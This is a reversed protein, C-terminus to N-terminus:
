SHPQIDRLGQVATEGIDMGDMGINLVNTGDFVYAEPSGEFETGNILARVPGLPLGYTTYVVEWCYAYLPVPSPGNIEYPGDIKATGDVMPAEWADAQGPRFVKVSTIRPAKVPYCFRAAQGRMIIRYKPSGASQYSTTKDGITIGVGTDGPYTRQSPLADKISNGVPLQSEDLSVKRLVERPTNQSGPYMGPLSDRYAEKSWKGMPVMPVLHNQIEYTITNEYLVYGGTEYSPCVPHFIPFHQDVALKQTNNTVNDGGDPSRCVTLLDEVGSARIPVSGEMSRTASSQSAYHVAWNGPTSAFFRTVELLNKLFTFVKFSFNFTVSRAFIDEDFDFKVPMFFPKFTQYEPRDTPKKTKIEAVTALRINRMRDQIVVLFALFGVYKPVGPEPVFNGHFRVNWEVGLPNGSISHRMECQRIGPWYPADSPIERDTIRFDMRRKDRSLDYQMSRQFGPRLTFTNGLLNTVTRSDLSNGGFLYHSGQNTLIGAFEVSGVISFTTFRNEDITWSLSYNFETVKLTGSQSDYTSNFHDPSICLQGNNYNVCCTPLAVEVTWVVRWIRAAGVSECVLLQPRPGFNLDMDKTVKFSYHSSQKVVNGLTVFPDQALTTDTPGSPEPIQTVGTPSSTSVGTDLRQNQGVGLNWITLDQGPTQLVRRFQGMNLDVPNLGTSDNEPLLHPDILTEITFVHKWWKPIRNSSEYVPEVTFSVSVAAPFTFIGYSVQAYIPGGTSSKTYRRLASHQPVSSM